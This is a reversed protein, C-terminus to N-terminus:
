LPRDSRMYKVLCLTIVIRRSHVLDEDIFILNDVRGKTSYMVDMIVGVYLDNKQDYNVSGVVFVSNMRGPMYKDSRWFGDIYGLARTSEDWLKTANDNAILESDFSKIAKAMATDNATDDPYETGTYEILGITTFYEDCKDLFQAVSTWVSVGLTLALTMAFILLTFLATKGM